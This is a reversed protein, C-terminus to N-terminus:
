ASFAVSAWESAAHGLLSQAHHLVQQGGGLGRCRARISRPSSPQAVGYASARPYCTYSVLLHGGAVQARLDDVWQSVDAASWEGDLTPSTSPL